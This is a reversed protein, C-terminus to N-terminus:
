KRDGDGRDNDDSLPKGLTTESDQDLNLPRALPSKTQQERSEVVAWYIAGCGFAGLAMAMIWFGVPNSALFIDNGRLHIVGGSVNQTLFALLAFGAVGAAVRRPM